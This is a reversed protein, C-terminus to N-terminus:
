KKIIKSAAIKIADVIGKPQEQIHVPKFPEEERVEAPTDLHPERYNKKSAGATASPAAPQATAEGPLGAAVNQAREIENQRSKDFLNENGTTADAIAESRAEAAGSRRQQQANPSPRFRMGGRRRRSFHKGDSM